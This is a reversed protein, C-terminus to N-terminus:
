KPCATVSVSTGRKSEVRVQAGIQEALLHVLRLGLSATQAADLGTPLGIGDDSVELMEGSADLRVLVTGSRGAPFAHKLANSVLENLMLGYPVAVGIELNTAPIELKMRVREPEIQYVSFLNKALDSMFESMDVHALDTSSYLLQHIEAIARVRNGMDSLAVHAAADHVQRAQMRLLGAIVQLNNKVRHHIERLLTEKDLLSERLLANSQEIQEARLYLDRQLREETEASSNRIRVLDTVDAVRHILYIVRGMADLVPFNAPQWFREEFHAGETEPQRIDYKQVAMFHPARSRLVENFSQRLNRVGTAELEDPNDPFVDFMYRGLVDGRTTMTARLYADSAAVIRFDPSLVLYAEPVADFIAQCDPNNIQKTM